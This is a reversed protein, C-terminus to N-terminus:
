KQIHQIIENVKEKESRKLYHIIENKDGNKKLLILAMYWNADKYFASQSQNAVISLNKEAAQWHGEAQQAAGIFYLLTDSNSQTKLQREWTAIAKKYEKSKYEVMAKEFAYDDTNSMVTMLGPDPKYYTAYLKSVTDQQNMLFWVGVALVLGAAVGAMKWWAIMPKSTKAKEEFTVQHWQEMADRLGAEAIGTRLLKVARLKNDWQPDEEQKNKFQQMAEGDLERDLYQDLLILEKQSIDLKM